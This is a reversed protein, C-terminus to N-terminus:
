TYIYMSGHVMNENEQQKLHAMNSGHKSKLRLFRPEHTLWTHALYALFGPEHTKLFLFPSGHKKAEVSKVFNTTFVIMKNKM